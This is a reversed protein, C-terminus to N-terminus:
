ITKLSSNLIATVMSVDKEPYNLSLLAKRNFDNILSFDFDDNLLEEILHNNKMEQFIQIFNPYNNSIRYDKLYNIFTTSLIFYKGKTKILNRIESAYENGELFIDEIKIKKKISFRKIVKKYNEFNNKIITFGEYGSTIIQIKDPINLIFTNYSYVPTAPNNKYRRDPGGNIREHLYNYYAPTAGKIIKGSNETVYISNNDTIEISTYEVLSFNLKTELIVFQPFFYFIVKKSKLTFTPFQTPNLEFLDKSHLSVTQRSLESSEYSFNNLVDNNIWVSYKEIYNRINERFEEFDYLLEQTVEFENLIITLLKEFKQQDTLSENNETLNYKNKLKEYFKIKNKRRNRKNRINDIIYKFLYFLGLGTVAIIGAIGIGIIIYGIIILFIIGILFNIDKNSM